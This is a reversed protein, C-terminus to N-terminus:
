FSIPLGTAAPVSVKNLSIVGGMTGLRTEARTVIAQASLWQTKSMNSKCLLVTNTLSPNDVGEIGPRALNGIDESDVLKLFVVLLPPGGLIKKILSPEEM